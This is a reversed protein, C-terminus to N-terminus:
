ARLKCDDSLYVSLPAFANSTGDQRRDWFNAGDKANEQGGFGFDNQRASCDSVAQALFEPAIDSFGALWGGEAMESALPTKRFELLMAWVYGQTFADLDSWKLFRENMPGAPMPGVDGGVLRNQVMITM